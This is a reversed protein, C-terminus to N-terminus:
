LCRLLGACCTGITHGVGGAEVSDTFVDVADCVCGERLAAARECFLFASRAMLTLATLGQRHGPLAAFGEFRTTAPGASGSPAPVRAM